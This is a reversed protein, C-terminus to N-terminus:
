AMPEMAAFGPHVSSGLGRAANISALAIAGDAIALRVKGGRDRYVDPHASCIPLACTQVGTV